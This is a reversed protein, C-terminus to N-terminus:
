GKGRVRVNVRVRKGLMEGVPAAETKASEKIRDLYIHIYRRKAFVKNSAFDQV